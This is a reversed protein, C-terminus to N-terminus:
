DDKQKEWAEFSRKAEEPADPMIRYGDFGKGEEYSYWDPNSMWYMKEEIVSSRKMM